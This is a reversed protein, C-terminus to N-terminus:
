GYVVEDFLAVQLISDAITMDMEMPETVIQIGERFCHEIYKRYGEVFKDLNLEHEEEGVCDEITIVVTKNHIVVYESLPTDEEKNDEKLRINQIWYNSGERFASCLLNDLDEKAVEINVNINPM